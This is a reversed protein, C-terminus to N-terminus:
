ESLKAEAAEVVHRCLVAVTLSGVGGPVPSIARVYPKVEEFCVDGCIGGDPADNIGIDIVIQDPNTFQPGVLNRSGAAAVLIDAKQCIEALGVTKHHCVTVTADRNQLLMSLPKGIVLSRGIVVVNKGSPSIGYWDLLELCAQPTCPAYGRYKGSYVAALSRPTMGDMDKKPLLADCAAYEDLHEPLPRFMLCGHISDDRNIADIAELLEGQTCSLPLNIRATRIGLQACRKMAANEYGIDDIFDGVRLLALCPVLGNEKLHQTRAALDEMISAAAPAGNLIEAM